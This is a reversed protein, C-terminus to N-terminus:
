PRWWIAMPRWQCAIAADPATVTMIQKGKRTPAIVEDEAIIFGNGQKSAILLKRGPKYVFLEVIESTEELDVM